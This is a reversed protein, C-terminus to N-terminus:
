FTELWDIFFSDTGTFTFSSGSHLTGPHFDLTFWNAGSPIAINTLGNINM